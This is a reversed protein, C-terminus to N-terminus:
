SLLGLVNPYQEKLLGRDVDAARGIARTQAATSLGKPDRQVIQVRSFLPFGFKQIITREAAVAASDKPVLSSLSSSDIENLSPLFVTALVALVIWAPVFLFRLHVVTWALARALVGAREPRPAAPQGNTEPHAPADPPPPPEVAAPGNAEGETGAGSPRRRIM